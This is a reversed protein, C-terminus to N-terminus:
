VFMDSWPFSTGTLPLVSAGLWGEVSVARMMQALGTKAIDLSWNFGSAVWSFM